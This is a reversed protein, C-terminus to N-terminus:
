HASSPPTIGKRSSWFRAEVQRARELQLEKESQAALEFMQLKTHENQIAAQEASIRAHLEAIAKPDNTTNITSMLQEIQSLRASSKDFADLTFAEHQAALGSSGQCAAVAEKARAPDPDRAAAACADFVQNKTQITKAAGTLGAYGGVRVSDYVGQWATPLYDRFAPNNLIEGLNRSGTLATYQTKAQELMAQTHTVQDAMKALQQASTTAQQEFGAQTTATLTPDTVVSAQGLARSPAATVLVLTVIRAIAKM